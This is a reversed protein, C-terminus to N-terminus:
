HIKGYSFLDEASERFAFWGEKERGDSRFLGFFPEVDQLGKRENKESTIFTFYFFGTGGYKFTYFMSERIYDAQGKESFGKEAPQTPYGTELVIIEKEPFFRRAELVRRGVVEGLPYYGNLYNPYADLGIIDVFDYWKRVDEVWHLDTHFNHTTLASPDEVKVAEHLVKMLAYLFDEDCWMLGHRWGWIMTECAVNLENEIQWIKLYNKYRRVLARAYIYNLTLYEERGLLDPIAREGKYLPLEHTYGVGIGMILKLGGQTYGTIVEDFYRFAEENETIFGEIMSESVDSYNLGTLDKVLPQIWRWGISPRLYNGGTERM